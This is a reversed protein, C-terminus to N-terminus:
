VASYYERTWNNLAVNWRDYQEQTAKGDMLARDACDTLREVTREIRDETVPNSPSAYITPFIPLHDGFPSETRVNLGALYERIPRAEYKDNNLAAVTRAHYTELIAKGTAKEVIVWSTTM